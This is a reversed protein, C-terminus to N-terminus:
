RETARKGRNMERFIEREPKRDRQREIGTERETKREGQEGRKRGGDEWVEAGDEQGCYATNVFAKCFCDM